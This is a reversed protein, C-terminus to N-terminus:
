IIIDTARTINSRYLAQHIVKRFGVYPKRKRVQIKNPMRTKRGMTQHVVHICNASGPLLSPTTKRVKTKIGFQALHTVRWFMMGMQNEERRVSFIKMDTIRQKNMTVGNEKVDNEM